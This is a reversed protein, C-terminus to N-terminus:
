LEEVLELNLTRDVTFQQKGNGTGREASLEVACKGLLKGGIDNIGDKSNVSSGLLRIQVHDFDHGHLM